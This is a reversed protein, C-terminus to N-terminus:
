ALLGDISARGSKYRGVLEAQLIDIRLHLAHREASVRNETVELRGALTELQDATLGGLKGIDDASLVADLEATLDSRETDPALLMPLRGPGRPQGSGPSMIGPLDDILAALDPPTNTGVRGLYAHVIDLRGQVLRRLYSLAVEAVQCETRMARIQELAKSEIDGLYDDTLIRGLDVDPSAM